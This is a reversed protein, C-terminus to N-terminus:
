TITPSGNLFRELRATAKTLYPRPDSAARVMYNMFTLTRGAM